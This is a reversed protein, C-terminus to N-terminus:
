ESGLLTVIGDAKVQCLNTHIHYNLLLSKFQHIPIFDNRVLNLRFEVLSKLIDIM